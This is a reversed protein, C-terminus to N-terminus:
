NLSRGAIRDVAADVDADHRGMRESAEDTSISMAQAIRRTSSKWISSASTLAFLDISDMELLADFDLPGDLSRGGDSQRLQKIQRSAIYAIGAIGDLGRRYAEEIHTENTSLGLEVVDFLSGAVTVGFVLKITSDSIIEPRGLQASFENYSIALLEFDVSDLSLLVNMSVPLPLNGFRTIACQLVLANYLFDSGRQWAQRIAFVDRAKLAYGITM